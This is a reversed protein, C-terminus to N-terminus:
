LIFTTLSTRTEPISETVDCNPQPVSSNTVTGQAVHSPAASIPFHGVGSVKNLYGRTHLFKFLLYKMSTQLEFYPDVVDTM